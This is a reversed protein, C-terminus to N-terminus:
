QCSAICANYQVYCDAGGGSGLCLSLAQDCAPCSRASAGPKLSTTRVRQEGFTHDTAKASAKPQLSALSLALFLLLFLLRAWSLQRNANSLVSAHTGRSIQNKDM